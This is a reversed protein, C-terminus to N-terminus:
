AGLGHELRGILALAEGIDVDLSRKGGLARRPKSLWDIALAKSGFVSIAVELLQPDIMETSRDNLHKANMAGRIALALAELADSVRSDERCDGSSPHYGICHQLLSEAENINLDLEILM